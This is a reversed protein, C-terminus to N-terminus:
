CEEADHVIQSRYSFNHFLVRLEKLKSRAVPLERLDGLIQSRRAVYDRYTLQIMAIAKHASLENRKGKDRATLTRKAIAKKLM